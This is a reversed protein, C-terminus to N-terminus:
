KKRNFLHLICVDYRYRELNKFPRVIVMYSIDPIEAMDQTMHSPNKKILTEIQEDGVVASRSFDERDERGNKEVESCLFGIVFM